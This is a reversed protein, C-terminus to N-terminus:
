AKQSKRDNSKENGYKRRIHIRGDSTDGEAPVGSSWGVQENASGNLKEEDNPCVPEHYPVLFARDGDWRGKAVPALPTNRVASFALAPLEPSCIALCRQRPVRSVPARGALLTRRGPSRCMAAVRSVTSASSPKGAPRRFHCERSGHQDETGRQQSTSSRSQMPYRSRNSVASIFILARLIRLPRTLRTTSPATFQSTVSSIAGPM